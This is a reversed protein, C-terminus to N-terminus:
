PAPNPAPGATVQETPTGEDVGLTAAQSPTVTCPFRGSITSVGAGLDADASVSYFDNGVGMAVFTCSLGDAAPTLAVFSPGTWSISGPEVTAPKGAKTVPKLTSVCQQSDTMNMFKAGKTITGELNIDVELVAAEGDKQTLLATIRDIKREIRDLKHGHSFLIAIFTQLYGLLARLLEKEHM